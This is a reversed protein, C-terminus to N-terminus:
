PQPSPCKKAFELIAAETLQVDPTATLKCYEAQGGWMEVVGGAEGRSFLITNGYQCGALLCLAAGWMLISALASYGFRTM